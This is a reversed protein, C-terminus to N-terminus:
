YWCFFFLGDTFHFLWSLNQIELIYLFLRIVKITVRAPAKCGDKRKTGDCPIHLMLRVTVMEYLDPLMELFENDLGVHSAQLSSSCKAYEVIRHLDHNLEQFLKPQTLIVHLTIEDTPAEPRTVDPPPLPSSESSLRKTIRQGGSLLLVTHFSLDNCEWFCTFEWICIFEWIYFFTM